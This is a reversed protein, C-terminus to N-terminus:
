NSAKAEFFMLDIYISAALIVAKEGETLDSHSYDVMFTDKDTFIEFGFGTWKKSIVAVQQGRKKFPFTWIRWFPSSVEMTSDDEAMQVQFKKSFFSFRREIGGVYNGELDYVDLRTFYFRFPHKAVLFKERTPTFFHIEFSRWHGLFQRLIFSFVGKQQEAAYAVDRGSENLIRYKNRTEFNFIEALEFTQKVFLKKHDSIINIM